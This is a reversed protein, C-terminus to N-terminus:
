HYFFRHFWLFKFLYIWSCRLGRVFFANAISFMGFFSQTTHSEQSKKWQFKNTINHCFTNTSCFFLISIRVFFSCVVNTDDMLIIEETQISAANSQVSYGALMLKRYCVISKKVRESQTHTHMKKEEWTLHKNSKATTTFCFALLGTMWMCVSLHVHRM